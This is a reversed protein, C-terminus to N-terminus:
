PARGWACAPMVTRAMVELTRTIALAAMGVGVGLIVRAGSLVGLTAAKARRMPHFLGLEGLATGQATM